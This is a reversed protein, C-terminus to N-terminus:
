PSNPVKELVIGKDEMQQVYKAPDANFKAKCDACCFYIRKGQYDIYVNKDIKSGEIPCITQAQTATAPTKTAAPAKQTENSKKCGYGGALLGAVLVMIIVSRATTM